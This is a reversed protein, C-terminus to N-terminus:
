QWYCVLPRIHVKWSYFLNILWKIADCATNYICWGKWYNLTLFLRILEWGHDALSSPTRNLKKSLHSTSPLFGLGTINEETWHPFRQLTFWKFCCYLWTANLIPRLLLTFYVHAQNQKYSSIYSLQGKLNNKKKWQNFDDALSFWCIIM